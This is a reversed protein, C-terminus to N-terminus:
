RRAAKVPRRAPTTIAHNRREQRGHDVEFTSGTKVLPDPHAFDIGEFYTKVEDSLTEQNEKLSFVYDAGASVIHNAIRYQCGMADITVIGGKLAIDPM